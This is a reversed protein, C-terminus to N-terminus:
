LMGQRGFAVGFKNGLRQSLGGAVCDGCLRQSDCIHVFKIASELPADNPKRRVDSFLDHWREPLHNLETILTKACITRICLFVFKRRTNGVIRFLLWM